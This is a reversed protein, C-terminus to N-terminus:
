TIVVETLGACQELSRLVLWSPVLKRSAKCIYIVPGNEQSVIHFKPCHTLFMYAIVWIIFQIQLYCTIYKDCLEMLVGESPKSTHFSSAMELISDHISPCSM